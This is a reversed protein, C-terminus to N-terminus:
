PSLFESLLRHFHWVGLERTPSFRGRDYFRSRVGRQVLEVVAEDEREVRDLDSGAGRDLKDEKWVYPLFSVKTLDPGLPRLVNVSLGWPYFNLMTNPFIWYYYASIPKGYDPSSSPLDFTNEAGKGHALQLNCRHFLESHYNGYDLTENLSAHIFPIHFGELYNDVYLAWNARVTYDRAREPRYVFENLPLWGLRDIIPGYTEEFSNAPAVGAFLLKEWSAFAPRSLDDAPSPFGCVGEFEPMHQFRGDLGFRRGHYRCRLYRENGCGEAVQMGRHTCVNSLLHLRDDMDRTVVMPEDLFGELLTFPRVAGPVKVDDTDGIFQWSRAFVRERVQSFMEPDKYFSAPLTSAEEIRPQVTLDM